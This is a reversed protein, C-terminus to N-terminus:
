LHAFQIWKNLSYYYVTRCERLLSYLKHYWYLLRFMQEFDTFQLLFDVCFSFLVASRYNLPTWISVFWYIVRALANMVLLCCFRFATKSVLLLLQRWRSWLWQSKKLCFLHSVLSARLASDWISIRWHTTCRNIELLWPSAAAGPTVSFSSM